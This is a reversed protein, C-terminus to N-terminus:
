RNLQIVKSGAVAGTASVSGPSVVTAGNAAATEKCGQGDISILAAAKANGSSADGSGEGKVIGGIKKGGLGRVGIRAMRIPEGRGLHRSPPLSPSNSDLVFVKVDLGMSEILDVPLMEEMQQFVIVEGGPEVALLASLLMAMVNEEGPAVMVAGSAFPGEAAFPALEEARGMLFSHNRPPYSIDIASWDIPKVDPEVSVVHMGLSAAAYELGMPVDGAGLDLLIPKGELRAKDIINSIEKQLPIELWPARDGQSKKVHDQVFREMLLAKKIGPLVVDDFFVARDRLRYRWGAMLLAIGSVVPDQEFESLSSIAQEPKGVLLHLWALTALEGPTPSGDRAFIEEALKGAAVEPDADGAQAFTFIDEVGEGAEFESADQAPGFRHLITWARIQVELALERLRPGSQGVEFARELRWLAREIDVREGDAARERALLASQVIYPIVASLQSTEARGMIGSIARVSRGLSEIDRRADSAEITEESAIQELAGAIDSLYGKLFSSSIFAELREIEKMVGSIGKPIDPYRRFLDFESEQMETDGDSINFGSRLVDIPDQWLRFEASFPQTSVKLYSTYGEDVIERYLTEVVGALEPKSALGFPGANTAEIENLLSDPISTLTRRAEHVLSKVWGQFAPNSFIRKNEM